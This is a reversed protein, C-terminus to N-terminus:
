LKARIKVTIEYFCERIVRDLLHEERGAGVAVGKRARKNGKTTLSRTFDSLQTWSKAIGHGYGALSKQGHFKGPM